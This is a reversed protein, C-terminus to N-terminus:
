GRCGGEPRPDGGGEGPQDSELENAVPNGFGDFADAVPPDGSPGQAAFCVGLGEEFAGAVGDDGALGLAVVDDSDVACACADNNAGVEDYLVSM